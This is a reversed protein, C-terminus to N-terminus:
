LMLGFAAVWLFLQVIGSGVWLLYAAARESRQIYFLGGVLSNVLWVLGGIIPLIFLGSPSGLRDPHGATDYHLPVLDPLAPYRLAIFVLLVFVLLLGGIVLGLAWRDRWVQWDYYDPRRTAREVVDTVGQRGASEFQEVFDPISIPSIVYGGGGTVIILQGAQPETAFYMLDGVNKTRGRGVLCGPWWLGRPALDAPLESGVLLGNIDTMPIIERVAGWVIVLANQTFLYKANFLSITRYAIFGILPLSLAIFGVWLPTIVNVPTRQIILLFLADAALLIALATFGIVMGLTRRPTFM